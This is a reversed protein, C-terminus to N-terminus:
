TTQLFLRLGENKINIAANLDRDITLGCECKYVRDQLTLEKICGCNSCMKSSPFWKDVKIFCKGREFLKYELM